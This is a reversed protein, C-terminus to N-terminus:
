FYSAIGIAARVRQVVEDAKKCAARTGQFLIEEIKDRKIANRREYFPQLLELLDQYLISKITTDGLGGRKYHSKLNELEASDKHFIDLYYFVMNNEVKGPDTVKVHDPDTYMSYVKKKLINPTDSLYIANNLSKSMKNKGDIGMLRQSVGLIASVEKFVEKKYIRNFKRVIENTQEIMPIQDEGVPVYDADFGLIDAAQSIPYCFFGLPITNKYSKQQIEAKVTPNRELRGVTVLNMLYITLEMLQKVQSQIFITTKNPDIGVSLYDLVVDYVSDTVKQPNEFNDTLAQIDAIMLYQKCLNQLKVRNILSGVYHGLHLRGSPRDGTLSTSAGINQIDTIQKM